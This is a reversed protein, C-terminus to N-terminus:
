IAELEDLRDVRGHYFRCNVYHDKICASDKYAEFGSYHKNPDSLNIALILRCFPIREVIVEDLFPCNKDM